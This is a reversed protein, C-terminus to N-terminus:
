VAGGDLLLEPSSRSRPKSGDHSANSSGVSTAPAAIKHNCPSANSADSSRKKKWADQAVQLTPQKSSKSNPPMALHVSRPPRHHNQRQQQQHHQLHQHHHYQQHQHKSRTNDHTLHLICMRSGFLCFYPRHKLSSTPIRRPHEGITMGVRFTSCRLVNRPSYCSIERRTVLFLVEFYFFTSPHTM